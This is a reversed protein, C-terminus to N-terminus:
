ETENCHSPPPVLQRICEICRLGEQGVQATRPSKALKSIGDDLALQLWPDSLREETLSVMIRKLPENESDELLCDSNTKWWDDLCTVASKVHQEQDAHVTGMSLLICVTAFIRFAM